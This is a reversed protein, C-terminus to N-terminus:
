KELKLNSIDDKTNINIFSLLKKDLLLIEDEISIYNTKWAQSILQSLKFINKNLNQKSIEYAEWIPYIAFLPELFNNKWRPICCDFGDCQNIIYQIVDFQILPNDCSLVFVKKYDLTNLEKFVSYLGILPSSVKQDTIIEHDDVIFASVKSYDIENIYNQVQQQSNAILFIDNSFRSVTELQYSIFPKGQFSFLGKDTGFRTSKGGILIAFALYKNKGSM